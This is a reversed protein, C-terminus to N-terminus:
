CRFVDKYLLYEAGLVPDAVFSQPCYPAMYIFDGLEVEHVDDGLLYRGRGATMYLGHEEDHLEVMELGAGPEFRMRIIAFDRRVDDGALLETRWLGPHYLQEPIADRDGATAPPPELGPLPQYRQRFWLLRAPPADSANTLRVEGGPPLYAFRGSVLRQSLGPGDVLAEGSLGYFCHEDEAGIPIPAEATGGGPALELLYQSFRAPARRPTILKVVRARTLEPLLSVAHNAPTILHYSAASGGSTTFCAPRPDIKTM